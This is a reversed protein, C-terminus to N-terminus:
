KCLFKCEAFVSGIVETEVFGAALCCIVAFPVTKWEVCDTGGHKAASLLHSEEVGCLRIGWGSQLQHCIPNQEVGCLRNGGAKCSVTFVVRKWEM